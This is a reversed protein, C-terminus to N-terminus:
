FTTGNFISDPQNPQWLFQRGSAHVPEPQYFGVKTAKTITEEATLRAVAFGEKSCICPKVTPVKDASCFAAAL